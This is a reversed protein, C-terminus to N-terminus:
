RCSGIGFSSSFPAKPSPAESKESSFRIYDLTLAQVKKDNIWSSLSSINSSYRDLRTAMTEPNEGIDNLQDAIEYLFVSEGGSKKAASDLSEGCKNLIKAMDFLNQSFGDIQEELHYDRYTDPSTSTIMIIKRYLENMQKVADTLDAIIQSFDGLVVEMRLSHSGKELYVLYPEGIDAYQWDKGYPFKVDSFEAFPVAGDIYIKRTVSFGRLESQEFRFGLKYFGSKEVDFNWEIWDGVSSFTLANLKETKPSCPVTAASSRDNVPIISSASKLKLDEAQIIIEDDAGNERPNNENKAIYDAYGIIDRPAILSIDSIYFAAMEAELTITHRGKEFRIKMPGDTLGEKDTFYASNWSEAKESKPLLDNGKNDTTKAESKYICPFDVTGKNDNPYKGDILLALRIGRNTNIIPMYTIQLYYEGSKEVEVDFKARGSQGDWKLVSTKGGYKVPYSINSEADATVTGLPVTVDSISADQKVASPNQTDSLAGATVEAFASIVSLVTVLVAILKKVKMRKM